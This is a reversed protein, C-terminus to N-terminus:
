LKQFHLIGTLYFGLWIKQTRSLKANPKLGGLAVDLDNIFNKIFAAPEGMLM